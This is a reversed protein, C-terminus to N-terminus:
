VEVAFVEIKCPAVLAIAFPAQAGSGLRDIVLFGGTGNGLIDPLLQAMIAGSSAMLINVVNVPDLNKLFIMGPDTFDGLKIAEQTIGITQTIHTKLKGASTLQRGTIAMTDDILGDNYTVSADLTLENAM